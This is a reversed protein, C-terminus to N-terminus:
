QNKKRFDLSYNITTQFYFKTYVGVTQGLYGLQLNFRPTFQYAIGAYMRNRDFPNATINIFLEDYFSLFLTNSEIVKKHLPINVRFLYRLRNRYVMDQQSKIWRQELRYRHEFFFLGLNNKMFLQQWLRNEQIHPGEFRDDNYAYNSISAYGLTFNSSSNFHYVLGTRFLLQEPQNWIKYDRFQGEFHFGLQNHVRVQANLVTWHGFTPTNKNLQARLHNTSCAIMGILLVIFKKNYIKNRM